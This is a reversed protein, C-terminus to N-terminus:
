TAFITSYSGNLVAMSLRYREVATSFACHYLDIKPDPMERTLVRADQSSYHSVRGARMDIQVNM